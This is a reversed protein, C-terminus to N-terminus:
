DKSVKIYTHGACIFQPDLSMQYEFAKQALNEDWTNAGFSPSIHLHNMTISDGAFLVGSKRFFFSLHGPTHGKTDLVELGDLIPLIDGPKLIIQTDVPESAFLRLVLSYFIIELGRPKLERSSRGQAMANSEVKGACVDAAPAKVKIQNVSGYHDPDAHTILIQRIKLWDMGFAHLERFLKSTFGKLGSDILFIMDKDIIVYQNVVMSKLRFINPVVPDM